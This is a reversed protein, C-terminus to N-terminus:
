SPSQGEDVQILSMAIDRRESIMRWCIGCFYRWVRGLPIRTNRMAQETAYTLDDISLGAYRFASIANLWDGSLEVFPQGSDTSWSEWTAIFSDVYEREDDRAQLQVEAARNIAAAWRLADAEVDAVVSASPNSAAKGSNCDGCATVLNGPDDPGGLATPTVHDVTLVVDPAAAACYRCAFNDRHLVEYRLRKSVAM